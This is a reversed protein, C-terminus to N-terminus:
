LRANLSNKREYDEDTMVGGALYSIAVWISRSHRYFFVVFLINFTVWFAIEPLLPPRFLIDTILYGAFSLFEAAGLNIYMGGVSEGSLREFRVGCHDCVKEIHFLTKFTKGKGCNPCRLMLGLWLKNVYYSFPKKERAM